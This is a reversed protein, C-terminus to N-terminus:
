RASEMPLSRSLSPHLALLPAIFGLHSLTLSGQVWTDTDRLHAIKAPLRNPYFTRAVPQLAVTKMGRQHSLAAIARVEARVPRTALRVIRARVIDRLTSLDGPHRLLDDIVEVARNVIRGRRATLDALAASDRGPDAFVPVVGDPSRKFRELAGRTPDVLFPELWAFNLGARLCGGDRHDLLFGPVLEVNPHLASLNGDFFRNTALFRFEVEPPPATSAPWADFLASLQKAWTGSYGVDAIVPARAAMLGEQRLYDVVTARRTQLAAALTRAFSRQAMLAHFPAEGEQAMADSLQARVSAPCAVFEGETLDFLRFLRATSFNGQMLYGTAAILQGAEHGDAKLLEGTARSTALVRLRADAGFLGPIAKRAACAIEHFITGDRTLFYIDSSGRRDAAALVDAAFLGAAPGIVQDIVSDLSTMPRGDAMRYRRALEARRTAEGMPACAAASLRAEDRRWAANHYHLARLGAGRAQVVDSHWNDGVHLIAHASLGSVDTVLKFLAGSAKTVGHDSSVFLTDVLPAFGFRELIRELSRRPLYMDSTVFIRRGQARLARLVPLAEPNPALNRLEIETEVEVLRRAFAARRAPDPVLPAIAAEFIDTLCPEDGRGQARMGRKLAQATFGRAGYVKRFVRAREGPVIDAAIEATKRFVQDLSLHRRIALTDFLDFSVAAIGPVTPIDHLTFVNNADKPVDPVRDARALHRRIAVREAAMRLATVAM